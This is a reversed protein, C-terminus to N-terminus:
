PVPMRKPGPGVLNAVENRLLVESFVLLCLYLVCMQFIILLGENVYQKMLQYSLSHLIHTCVQIYIYICIFEFVRFGAYNYIYISYYVHVQKLCSMTRSTKVRYRLIDYVVWSGRSYATNM